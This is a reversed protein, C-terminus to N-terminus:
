HRKKIKSVYKFKNNIIKNGRKLSPTAGNPISLTTMGAEPNPGTGRIYLRLPKDFGYGQFISSWGPKEALRKQVNLLQSYGDFIEYTGPFKKSEVKHGGLTSEIDPMNNFRGSGAIDLNNNVIKTKFKKVPQGKYNVVELGDVIVDRIGFNPNDTTTTLIQKNPPAVYIIQRNKGGYEFTGPLKDNLQRQLLKYRLELSLDRLYHNGELIRKGRKDYKWFRVVGNTNGTEKSLEAQGELEKLQQVIDYISNRDADSLMKDTKIYEEIAPYNLRGYKFAGQESDTASAAVRNYKGNSVYKNGSTVTIDEIPETSVLGVGRTKPGEVNDLYQMTVINRGNPELLKSSGTAVKVTGKKNKIQTAADTLEKSSDIIRSVIPDKELAKVEQAIAEPDYGLNPTGGHLENYKSLLYKRGNIEILPEGKFEGALKAGKPLEPQSALIPETYNLDSLDINKSLDIPPKEESLAKQVYKATKGVGKVGKKILTMEAPVFKPSVGIDFLLNTDEDGFGPNEPNWPAKGTRVTGVWRSPMMTPLVYQFTADTLPTSAEMWNPNTPRISGYPSTQSAAREIGQGLSYLGRGIIDFGKKVPYIIDNGNFASRHQLMAKKNNERVKDKDVIKNGKPTVVLEKNGTASTSKSGVTYNRGGATFEGNGKPELDVWKNGIKIQPLKGKNQFKPILKMIKINYTQKKLM